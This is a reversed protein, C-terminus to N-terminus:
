PRGGTRTKRKEFRSGEETMIMGPVKGEAVAKEYESRKLSHVEERLLRIQEGQEAIMKNREERAKALEAELEGLRSGVHNSTLPSLYPEVIQYQRKRYEDDDDRVFTGVCVIVWVVGFSPEIETARVMISVCLILELFSLEFGSARVLRDVCMLPRFPPEGPYM